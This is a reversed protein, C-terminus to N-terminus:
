IEVLVNMRGRIITQRDEFDPETGMTISILYKGSAIEMESAKKYLKITMLMDSDITKVLSGDSEIFSLVTSSIASRAPDNVVEARLTKGTLDLNHQVDFSVDLMDGKVVENFEIYGISIEM